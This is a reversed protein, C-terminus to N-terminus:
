TGRSLADRLAGIASDDRSRGTRVYFGGRWRMGLYGATREFPQDFGKPLEPDSGVALLWVDRGQLQRGRGQPDRGSTLDTLRDFFTKMIGSMAYWYVPTAFVISRHELMLAALAAFDDNPAPEAYDFPLISKTALDAIRAGGFRSALAEVAKATDGDSRASGLIILISAEDGAGSM